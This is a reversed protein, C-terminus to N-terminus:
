VPRHLDHELRGIIMNILRLTLLLHRPSSFYLFAIYNLPANLANVVTVFPFLFSLYPNLPAPPNRTIISGAEEFIVYMKM